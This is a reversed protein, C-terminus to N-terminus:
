RCSRNYETIMKVYAGTFYEENMTLVKYSEETPTLNKDKRVDKIKSQLESYSKKAKEKNTFDDILPKINECDDFIYKLMTQYSEIMSDMGIFINDSPKLAYEDDNSLYAYTHVYRNNMFLNFGFIKIKDDNKLLPLWAKRNLDVIKKNKDVSKIKMLYYTKTVNNVVVSISKINAQTLVTAKDNLDKKFYFKEDALNLQEELKGFNNNTGIEISNNEIFGNIFGKIKTNDTYSIEAEEFKNGINLNILGANSKFTQSFMLSTTLLPLLVTIAKKM